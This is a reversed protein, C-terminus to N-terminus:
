VRPTTGSRWCASGAAAPQLGCNCSVETEHFGGYFFLRSNLVAIEPLVTKRKDSATRVGPIRPRAASDHGAIATEAVEVFARSLARGDGQGYVVSSSLQQVV